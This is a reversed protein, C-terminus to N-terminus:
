IFFITYPQDILKFLFTKLNGIACVDLIGLVRSLKTESVSEDDFKKKRLLISPNLRVM